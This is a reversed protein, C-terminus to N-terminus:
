DVSRLLRVQEAVRLSVPGQQLPDLHLPRVVVTEKQQDEVTSRLATPVPFVRPPHVEPDQLLRTQEPDWSPYCRLERIRSQRNAM